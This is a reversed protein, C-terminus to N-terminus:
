PSAHTLRQTKAKCFISGVHDTDNRSKDRFSLHRLVVAECSNSLLPHRFIRHSIFAMRLKDVIDTFLSVVIM